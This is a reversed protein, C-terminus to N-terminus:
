NNVVRILRDLDAGFYNRLPTIDMNAPVTISELAPCDDFAYEGIQELNSGSEFTVNRLKECKRFCYKGLSRASKPITISELSLCNFFAYEGIQKLNSGSEFTVNRLKKCMWFCHEGLSRVSKPLIISELSLCNFFAFKGIQKLRSDSEFIVKRLKKCELFCYEDLFQVSEPITISELSSCFGFAKRNISNLRSNQEFAIEELGDCLYFCGVDLFQVSAPIRIFKLTNDSAVANIETEEDDPEIPPSPCIEYAALNGISTVPYTVEDITVSSKPFAYSVFTRHFWRYQDRTTPPYCVVGRDPIFCFRSYVFSEDKISMSQMAEVMFPLGVMFTVFVKKMKGEM